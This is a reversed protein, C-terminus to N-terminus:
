DDRANNILTAIWEAHEPYHTWTNGAIKERLTPPASPDGSDDPSIREDLRAPDLDGITTVLETHTARLGTRVDDLVRDRNLRFIVDNEADLDRNAWTTEDIGLGAYYPHGNLMFMVGRECAGLHALHDQARWGAADTPESLQKDSFADVAAWLARWAEEIEDLVGQVGTRDESM